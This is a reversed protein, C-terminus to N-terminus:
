LPIGAGSQNAVIGQWWRRRAPRRARASQQGPESRQAWARLAAVAVPRTIAASPGRPGHQTRLRCAFWPCRRDSATVPRERFGCTAGGVAEQGRVTFAAATSNSDGWRWWLSCTALRNRESAVMSLAKASPSGLRVRVLSCM